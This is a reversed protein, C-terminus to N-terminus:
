ESREPHKQQDHFDAADVFDQLTLPENGDDQVVVEDNEAPCLDCEIGWFGWRGIDCLVTFHSYDGSSM